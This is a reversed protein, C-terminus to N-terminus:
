FEERRECLLIFLTDTSLLNFVKGHLRILSHLYLEVVRPMPVLHLQTTMAWGSQAHASSTASHDAQRGLWVIGLSFAKPVWLLNWALDMEPGCNVNWLGAIGNRVSTDCSM